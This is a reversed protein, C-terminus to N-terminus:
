SDPRNVSCFNESKKPLTKKTPPFGRFHHLLSVLDMLQTKTLTVRCLEITEQQLHVAEGGNGGCCWCVRGPSAETANLPSRRAWEFMKEYVNGDYRGLVSNLKKDHIDFADVLAVANPRLQSMLEKIRVSIQLLQPVSLLGSQGFFCLSPESPVVFSDQLHPTM